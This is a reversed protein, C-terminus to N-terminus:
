EPLLIIFETGTGIKTEINMVGGHGTTIIDYSISLGLGTGQGTPKTTFFPQFIKDLVDHSIGDANDKVRIEVRDKLKKTSVIVCPVYGDIEKKAKVSVAYFANNILNLLVRGIDLPIINIKQLSEDLDTKFEAHFSKDKARLGHYALRLYEDALLNLDTLEKQRKGTRSHELMGKVISSARKGHHTIKELNQKLDKTISNVEKENGKTLEERMEDILDVSVESFNNVFNLPNQIEHAIGATLEGLSAMKESHILQSQTSKLEGLTIEMKNKAEELKRFDEYRAYAISFTEALSQVLQLKDEALNFSNGVYLMGQNFPLFHLYLSEPPNAAGQYTKKNQIQGIKIMDQMWQLFEDRDWHELYINDNKWHEVLQNIFDNVNFPIDLVGLSEGDPSSLYAQIIEDSEDVIFVGCRFFPVNLIKLEQWIIPTIRQLDEKTRMSAIEGRVRDLSANKTEERTRAESNQLDQFRTFALHYADAFRQLVQINGSALPMNRFIALVGSQFSATYCYQLIHSVSEKLSDNPFQFGSEELVQYYQRLNDGELVHFYPEQNEWAKFIGELLPHGTLSLDNTLMSSDKKESSGTIWFKAQKHHKNIIAIGGYVSALGIRDLEEFVAATTIDLDHSQQMAMAKNRVRELAAEISLDKVMKNFAVSLEGIEDRSKNNVSQTFDGEGVRNAADRLALVPRSINRALWFGIVLGIFFVVLSVLVSTTRIQRRGKIIEDTSFSLLIEGSMTPTTFPASKVIFHDNSSADPNVEVNEPFSKFVTKEIKFGAKDSSTITDTQILSVYNLREDNRVFDIATEVGEFNQETLAIKVGLAVTNAFNEIEENYNELLYREQRAPFYLLIFFAFMLVVTLVTMLIKGKVTLVMKIM